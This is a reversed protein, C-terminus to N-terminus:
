NAPTVIEATHGSSRALREDTTVLPADLAEALTVYAADYASLNRRLAWIGPLLTRAPYRILRLEGLDELADSARGAAVERRGLLARLASAIEFDILHPAHCAKARRLHEAVWPGSGRLLLYDVAAGADLVIL